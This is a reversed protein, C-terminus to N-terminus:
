ETSPAHASYAADQADDYSRAYPYTSGAAGTSSWGNSAAGGAYGGATAAGSAVGSGLLGLGGGLGGGAVKGLFGLPSGGGLGGFGSFGSLSLALILAIKAIILAKVSLFGLGFVFLPFLALLKAGIALLWPSKFKKM